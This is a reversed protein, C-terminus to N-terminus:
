LLSAPEVDISWNSSALTRLVKAKKYDKTQIKIVIEWIHKGKKEEIFGPIPSSVKVWSLYKDIKKKLTEAEVKAKFADRHTLQLKILKSFPPYSFLKRAQIEKKLLEEIKNTKLLDFIELEPNYTQILTEQSLDRLEQVIRIFNDTARFEPLNLIPDAVIISAFSFNNFDEVLHRASFILQTAILINYKKNIFDNLIRKQEEKTKASDADLCVPSANKISLKQIEQLIKETGAGMQKIRLSGCKPCISPMRTEKLCHRCILKSNKCYVMPASCDACKITHGCDRCVMARSIGKRNIFLITQEQDAVTKEIKEKLEDSLISFNGKKIEERLDIIQLQNKEEEEKKRNLKYKKEESFYFSEISPLDSGLIIKSNNIQTLKLALTKSHYKPQLDWSKYSSNDENDLIILGLKKFPLFLATRTGVITKIKNQSIKQWIELQKAPSLKSHFVCDTINKYRSAMSVEPILILTQKDKNKSIEKKYFNTRDKKWILIPKQFPKNKQKHFDLNLEKIKKRKLIANPLFLKLCIGLSFLYFQSIFIALEMQRSTIVPSNTLIKIVPKLKFQSKKVEIKHEQLPKVDRVIAKTDKNGIKILILGGIPPKEISFYTLTESEPDSIKILPIAEILFM